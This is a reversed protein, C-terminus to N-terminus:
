EPFDYITVNNGTAGKSNQYKGANRPCDKPKSPCAIIQPSDWKDTSYEKIEFSIEIFLTERGKL